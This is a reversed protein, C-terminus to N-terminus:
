KWPEPGKGWYAWRHWGGSPSRHESRSVAALATTEVERFTSVALWGLDGIAVRVTAVGGVLTPETDAPITGALVSGETTEVLVAPPVADQPRAPPALALAVLFLCSAPRPM